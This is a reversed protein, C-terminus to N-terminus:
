FLAALPFIVSFGSVSVIRDGIRYKIYNLEYTTRKGFRLWTNIYESSRSSSYFGGAGLVYNRFGFPHHFTIEGGQPAMLVNYAQGFESYHSLYQTGLLAVIQIRDDYIRALDYAFYLGMNNFLEKNRMSFSDFFRLSTNQTLDFRGYLSANGTIGKVEHGNVKSIMEYPGLGFALKIRHLRSPLTVSFTLKKTNGTHNKLTIESSGSTTFTTINEAVESDLTYFNPTVWLLKLKPRENGIGGLRSLHCSISLYEDFNKILLHYPTCSPDIYHYKVKASTIPELLLTNLATNGKYIEVQNAQFLSVTLAFSFIQGNKLLSPSYIQGKFKVFPTVGSMEKKKIQILLEASPLFLGDSGKEWKLTGKVFASRITKNPHSFVIKFNNLDLDPYSQGFQVQGNKFSIFDRKQAFICFSFVVLLLSIYIKRMIATYFFVFYLFLTSFVVRLEVKWLIYFRNTITGTPPLTKKKAM